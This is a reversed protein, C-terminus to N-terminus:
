LAAPRSDTVRRTQTSPEFAAQSASYSPLCLRVRSGQGPTSDLTLMGHHLEIIEKVISMGLGTGSIKGSSDARYFRECVRALQEPTMGIGPDAVEICVQQAQGDEDKIAAKILVSGGAPSYKYANSVVNLVAQRLKGADAMLYLPEPPMEIQPANRGPPLQYSKVVGAVLEQVEVRTYRFDKDRRAEIRALDLLENLINAMLKSQEYITTLFEHQTPPDYEDSLLIESFGLISAMPTRLEHAATSLFESKMHDVETEHTVDRLYLIQSVSSAQSCRLGVQLVRKGQINLEILERKDTKGKAVSTRLAEVGVFQSGPKCRQALWASFDNEDLGELRDAGPETMQVFAPSIYKVRRQEDFSVFGDPSLEFIASLQENRDEIQRQALQRSLLQRRIQMLYRTLATALALILVSVMSAQLWFAEKARQYNALLYQTDLGDTVVLPYQPIKRYHYMREIGDVVSRSTYSGEPQGAAIRELMISGHAQTGFEERNGVIRARAVGDLGYLAMVGEQGLKLEGYFRTFYGPDVSVVVVGAFEGNPRNIRRTLQISWKNSARGLVPKSVFMQGTDTAVHVKFHERDSLNLKGSTPLNSLVYIGQADIVGVQPFIEADIVGRETLEALDLRNGIELYRSQIFRIVQDASRFTRNAHEQSVRTLNALDREANAFEKSRGDSVLAFVYWWTLCLFIGASVWLLILTRRHNNAILLM